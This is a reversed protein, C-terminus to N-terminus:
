LQLLSQLSAPKEEFWFDFGDGVKGSMKKVVEVEMVRARVAEDEEYCERERV